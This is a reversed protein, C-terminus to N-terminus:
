DVQHAELFMARGFATFFQQYPEPDLVPTVNYRANARVLLQTTGRPRVTVTMRLQYYNLKTGSISGINHDANDIVFGLDQLTAIITRLTKERDTTDFARTQISRIKVQSEDSDLLDKATYQCASFVAALIICLCFKRFKM